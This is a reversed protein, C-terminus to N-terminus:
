GRRLVAKENNSKERKLKKLNRIRAEFLPSSLSERNESKSRLHDRKLSSIRGGKSVNGSECLDESYIRLALSVAQRYSMAVLVFRNPSVQTSTNM